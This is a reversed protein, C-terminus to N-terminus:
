RVSFGAEEFVATAEPGRLFAFLQEVAPEAEGAVIAFPYTIPTHSGEPFRGLVEVDASAAADTAYVIGLPAEGTAVLALAARVDASRALRDATAEWFGLNELASKAYLGAPVHDPDGVAIREGDDLLAVLDLDGDVTVEELESDAPAILVLRNGLASVRTEPEILGAEAVRDMWRENASLYIQAPAGATIQRALTSSSAFSLRVPTGTETEYLEAIREVADTLSAAAFVTVPEEASSARPAASAVAAVATFAGVAVISPRRRM